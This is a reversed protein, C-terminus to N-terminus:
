AAIRAGEEWNVRVAGLAANSNGFKGIHDADVSKKDWRYGIGRVSIIQNFTPDIAEFARRSRKVYVDITRIDCGGEAHEVGLIDLLVSRTLVRGEARVLTDILMRSTPSADIDEGMFIIQGSRAVTVNGYTFDEYKSLSTGCNPCNHM